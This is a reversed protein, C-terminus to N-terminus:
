LPSKTLQAREDVDRRDAGPDVHAKTIELIARLREARKRTGRTPETKDSVVVLAHMEKCDGEMGGCGIFNECAELSNTLLRELAGIVNVTQGRMEEFEGLYSLKDDNQQTLWDEMFDKSLYLEAASKVLSQMCGSNTIIEKLEGESM